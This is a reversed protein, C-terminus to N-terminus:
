VILIHRIKLLLPNFSNAKIELAVIKEQVAIDILCATEM